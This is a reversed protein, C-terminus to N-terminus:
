KGLNNHAFSCVRDIDVQRIEDGTREEWRREDGEM